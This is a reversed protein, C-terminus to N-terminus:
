KEAKKTGPQKIPLSIIFTSGIGPESEAKIEGKHREVIKYVIALGIGTGEFEGRGILRTFPKFIIDSNEPNFGIGNDQIQIICKMGKIEASVKVVPPINTQHYKLGNGIINAIVQGLQIRDGQIKPLSGVEVKGKEKIIRAELDSIVEETIEQLNIETFPNGKTSVRSFSLLGNIMEQMRNAASIMRSMYDKGRDDIENYYKQALRDGFAQIKRLPEQLDHSAIYAFQELEKNSRELEVMYKELKREIAKKHTINTHIGMYGIPTGKNDRIIDVRLNIDLIKGDKRKMQISGAWSKGEDNTDDVIKRMEPDVILVGPTGIQHYEEITYGFLDVLSKNAYIMQSQINAIGIGDEASDVATTIQILKKEKEMEDSIDRAIGQIEVVKGNLIIPSISIQIPIISKDKRLADIEVGMLFEGRIAKRLTDRVKHHEHESYYNSFWTGVVEDPTYGLVTKTAPSAYTVKGIINIHFIMDPSIESIIKYREESANLKHKASRLNADKDEKIASLKNVQEQLKHIQEQLDKFSPKM